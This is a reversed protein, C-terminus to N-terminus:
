VGYQVLNWKRRVNYAGKSLLSGTELGFRNGAVCGSMCIWCGEPLDENQKGFFNEVSIGLVMLWCKCIWKM